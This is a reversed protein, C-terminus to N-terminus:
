REKPLYRYELWLIILLAALLIPFISVAFFALRYNWWTEYEAAVPSRTAGIVVYIYGCIITAVMWIAITTLIVKRKM